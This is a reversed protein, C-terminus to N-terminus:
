NNLLIAQKRLKEKIRGLRTGVNSISIGMIDAIEQHSRDEMYLLVLAKDLPPLTGIMRHLIKYEETYALDFKDEIDAEPLTAHKRERRKRTIATNLAIRYLWTSIASEKRFRPYATWAQLVIEQFLDKKDETDDAYLNCVKYILAEYQRLMDTFAQTDPLQQM